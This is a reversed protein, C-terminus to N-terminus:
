LLLLISEVYTRTTNVIVHNTTSKTGFSTILLRKYLHIDVNKDVMEAYITNNKDKGVTISKTKVDINESKVDIFEPVTQKTSVLQHTLPIKTTIRQNSRKTKMSTLFILSM